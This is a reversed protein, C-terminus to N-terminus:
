AHSGGACATIEQLEDPSLLVSPLLLNYSFETGAMILLNLYQFGNEQEIVDAYEVATIDLSPHNHLFKRLEQMSSIIVCSGGDMGASTYYRDLLSVCEQAASFLKSDIKTRIASLERMSKVEYM